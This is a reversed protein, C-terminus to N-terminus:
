HGCHETVPNTCPPSSAPQGFCLGGVHNRCFTCDTSTHMEESGELNSARASGPQSPAPADPHTPFISALSEGLQRSM